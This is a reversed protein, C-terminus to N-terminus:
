DREEQKDKFLMTVIKVIFKSFGILLFANLLNFLTHLTCLGYLQGNSAMRSSEGAVFDSTVPDAGFLTGVWQCLSMFPQFFILIIIVGTTNFLFHILAARRAQVNAKAAALNATITTGINAGLVIAAAMKFPIWGSSLLILTLVIVASSSQLLCSTLLGIFLFIMVSLFGNNSLSTLMDMFGGEQNIEAMSNRMFGISVFILATGIIINSITKKKSNKSMMFFFGLVLLPFGLIRVDLTFGFFTIIWSTLTTGINAGFIVGVAQSLMLLGANVFSVVMVTTASSSQVAATLGAGALIQKTPNGKMWPLFRRVGDGLIKQLGNSLTLTGYLFLALAGILTLFNLLM